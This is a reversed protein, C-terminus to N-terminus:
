PSKSNKAGIPRLAYGIFFLGFLVRGVANLFPYEYWYDGKPNSYRFWDYALWLSIVGLALALGRFIITKMM